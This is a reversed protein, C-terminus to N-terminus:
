LVIFSWSNSVFCGWWFGFPFFLFSLFVPTFPSSLLAVSFTYLIFCNLAEKLVHMLGLM